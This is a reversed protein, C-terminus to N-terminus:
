VGQIALGFMDLFLIHEMEQQEGLPAFVLHCTYREIVDVLPKTVNYRDVVEGNFNLVLLKQYKDTRGATALRRTQSQQCPQFLDGFAVDHNAIADYIVHRRLITVNGHHELAVSQIRVHTHVVVHRETQLQALRRLGVDLTAHSLRRTNQVDLMQQVALRLLEGTTLALTHGYAARNHTLRRHEQEVLRQGVQVRLQTDLGTRLQRAQVLAQRGRENVHRVVLHLGHRHRAANGHHLVANQLLDVRRLTQIIMRLVHEHGTEDTARAHVEEISRQYLAVALQLDVGATEPQFNGRLLGVVPPLEGPLSTTKPIRGSSMWALGYTAGPM